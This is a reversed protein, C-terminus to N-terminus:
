RADERDQELITKDAGKEMKKAGVAVHNAGLEISNKLQAGTDGTAKARAKQARNVAINNQQEAIANDDKAIAAHDAALHAQDGNPACGALAIVALANLIALQKIM